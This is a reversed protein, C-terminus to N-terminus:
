KGVGNSPAQAFHERKPPVTGANSALPQTQKASIQRKSNGAAQGRRM